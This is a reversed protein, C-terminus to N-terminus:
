SSGGRTMAMSVATSGYKRSGLPEFGEPWVAGARADHEYVVVAGSALLGGSLLGDLMDGVQGADIRYPPDLLLL